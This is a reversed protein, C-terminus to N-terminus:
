IKELEAKTFTLVRVSYDPAPEVPEDFAVTITQYTPGGVETVTGIQNRANFVQVPDGVVIRGSPAPNLVQSLAVRAKAAGGGFRDEDDARARGCHGCGGRPNKKM